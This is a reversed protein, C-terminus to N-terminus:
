KLELLIKDLLGGSEVMSDALIQCDAMKPSSRKLMTGDYSSATVGPLGSAVAAQLTQEIDAKVNPDEYASTVSAAADGFDFDLSRLTLLDSSRPAISRLEPSNTLILGVGNFNLFTKM